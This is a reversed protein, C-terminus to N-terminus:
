PRTSLFEAFARNFVEPNELNAVHGAQPVVELRAEPIAKAMAEAVDLPILADSEGVVVLTPVRITSLLDTQDRRTKMAELAGIWAAPATSRMMAGLTARVEAHRPSSESLIRGLLGDVLPAVDGKEEVLAQQESRTQRGEATDPDARTDALVLGALLEPRRRAVALAIYGGMSLGVLVVPRLGLEGILGAVVDAYRDISYASREAPVDSRGFGPLDPAVARHGAELAVPIQPEWMASHFPFGHVFVVARDGDGEDRYHVSLGDFTFTGM